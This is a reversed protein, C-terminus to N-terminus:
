GQKSVQFNNNKILEYLNISLVEFTICLHNRFYFYEGMHVINAQDHTDREKCYQLLKVEVLAQHHFRKKNRILKVATIANDKYDFCKAVQGFSGKGLLSLVEYRYSFHDHMVIHYDGRDDDYSCCVCVCARRTLDPSSRYSRCHKLEVYCLARPTPNAGM